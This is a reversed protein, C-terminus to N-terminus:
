MAHDGQHGNMLGFIWTTMEDPPRRIYLAVFSSRGLDWMHVLMHCKDPFSWGRLLFSFFMVRTTEEAIAPNRPNRSFVRSFCLLSPNPNKRAGMLPHFQRM